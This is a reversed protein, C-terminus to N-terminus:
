ADAMTDTRKPIGGGAKHWDDFFRQDPHLPPWEPVMLWLRHM